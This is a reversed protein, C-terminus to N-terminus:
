EGRLAALLRLLQGRTANDFNFGACSIMATKTPMLGAVDIGRYSWWVDGIADTRKSFSANEQMWEATIPENDDDTTKM